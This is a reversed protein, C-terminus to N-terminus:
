IILFRVYPFDKNCHNVNKPSSSSTWKVCTSEYFHHLQYNYIKSDTLIKVNQDKDKTYSSVNTQTNWTKKSDRIPVLVTFFPRQIM